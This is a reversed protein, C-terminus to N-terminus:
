AGLGSLQPQWVSWAIMASNSGIFPKGHWILPKNWKDASTPSRKRWKARQRQSASFTPPRRRRRPPSKSRSNGATLTLGRASAELESSASSVSDAVKGVAAEFESALRVLDARRREAAVCDQELKADLEAQTKESAKQKFMEVAKAMEGLEDKREVGPLVVDFRGEGLQRMAATMSAVTKAIRQGCWLALLGVLLTLLGIMWVLKRRIEEARRESAQSRVDAATMLKVLVPRVREYIQGLDDVQDDLTQKTVMFSVFSSKYARILEIIQSKVETPLNSQALTTEFEAEQDALQDGYKEEGRLIFDKEHRRMMLLLITLQPQNLEALRQEVVHVAKRLKGQFGDDENFGVNRQATVVNHLRTAYLDLVPRLSIAQRLPDDDPLAWVVEEVRSLETLQREYSDAYRKIWMEGPRRLFDGAIQRSELFGQSLSAVHFRFKNSDNWENEVVRAYYLAALCIAGTVLIGCTGLLAMQSRLGIRFDRFLRSRERSFIATMSM